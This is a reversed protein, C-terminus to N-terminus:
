EYIMMRITKKRFGVADLECILVGTAATGGLDIPLTHRGTSFDQTYIKILQGYVDFIRITVSTAKPLYFHLDTTGFFPNPTNQFFQLETNPDNEYELSVSALELEAMEGFRGLYAEAPTLGSNLALVESLRANSKASFELSFLVEGKSPRYDSVNEWSMTVFGEDARVTGFNNEKLSPLVGAKHGQFGLTNEDFDLTFQFGALPQSSAAMFPIAYVQGAVLEIDKTNFVLTKDLNRDENGGGDLDSLDASENVDGVKIGVFDQEWVNGALPDITITEPFTEFFPNAPVPFVYKADVFRWSKNGNPFEDTINLILKQLVVLDYTTVAGSSNADAAIIKYPSPLAEVGLIHRRIIVMDYTTVGNLPNTDYVPTLTYDQNLPLSPFDFTGDVDTTVAMNIGGTLGVLKQGLAEGDETELKGAITGVTGDGCVDLNDQVVVNTQCFASNGSQDTVTLTVVKTGLDQCTFTNPSVQLILTSVPSCNDFSGNNIMAPTLTIYGTQQITVSVGNNCVPNPAESDVVMVQVSCSSTNGCGDSVTYTVLHNGKPFVGSAAGQNTQAYESNNLVTLQASCDDVDPLPVNIFTECGNDDIGVIMMGPCTLVPAVSDRVEIVQTHEWFGGAQPNNPSYSCWDVVAWNRILQFCAPEATYFYYDTHTIQLQECDQGTVVPEGMLAPSLDPQCEYLDQNDPFEVTIDTNDSITILQLCTSINGSQDTAKWTREVTGNGCNNLDVLDTHATSAVSCNDTAYPLGTVATNNYNSGCNINIAAPCLIEPAIQDLVQVSGSCSSELGNVDVVKLTVQPTGGLDDCDFSVFTDYNGSGSLEVLYEAIGCNDYSGNDFTEAFVLTTGDEELAVQVQLECLATPKKTDKVTVTMQCSSTNSCGDQGTYTVTHSGAPVGDFPGFGTGYDWTPTLIAGSCGDEVEGQPLYVQATCSSSFTNFSVNDPCTVTPPTTDEVRIIQAYVLFGDTCLDFVTWTRIIKRAGGCIPVEQDTHSVILECSGAIDVPLGEVTPQGAIELDSPDEVSCELAPMEIGDRHDPFVIQPLTARKLFITQLCSDVNGSEDEAYWMREIYATVVQNDVTDFCSLDILTDVFSLDISDVVSANDSVAPTDLNELLENCWIFLTDQCDLEPAMADILDIDVECSNGSAPHLLTATMPMGLLSADLLTGVSNGLTDVITIDFNNSCGVSSQLLMPPFIEAEGAADLAVTIDNHCILTCQSHLLSFQSTCLSLAIVFFFSFSNKVKVKFGKEQSFTFPTQGCLFLKVTLRVTRIMFMSWDNQRRPAQPILWAVRRPAFGNGKVM